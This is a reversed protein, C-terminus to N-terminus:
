DNEEYLLGMKYKTEPKSYLKLVRDLIIGKLKEVKDDGDSMHAFVALRELGGTAGLLQGLTSINYGEILDLDSESFIGLDRLKVREVDEWM